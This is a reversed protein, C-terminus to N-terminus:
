SRKLNEIKDAFYAKKSPNLLSLKRYVEIAKHINGQKEWVEAMTETVIDSEHISDEALHQVNKESSTELSNSVEAAPLRKMTKLWETFSKLQKGLKDKPLEDQGLRIGQSAFYDVTHFPEFTLTTEEKVEAVETLPEQAEALPESPTPVISIDQLVPREESELQEEIEPLEKSAALEPIEMGIEQEPVDNIDQEVPETLETYETAEREKAEPHTVPESSIIREPTSFEQVLDQDFNLEAHLKDSSIFYEFALPNNYYLVSKQLQATYDDQSEAKLKELLLFQAPAFYPYKNAIARVDQLACEEISSKGLLQKALAHIRESM